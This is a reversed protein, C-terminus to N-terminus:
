DEISVQVIENADVAEIPLRPDYGAVILYNGAPLDVLAIGRTEGAPAETWGIVSGPNPLVGQILASRVDSSTEGGTEFVAFSVPQDLSNVFDFVVAGPNVLQGRFATLGNADLTIPIGVANVDFLPALDVIGSLLWADQEFVYLWEQRLLVHGDLVTLNISGSAPTATPEGITEVEIQGFFGADHMNSMIEAAAASVATGFQTQVLTPLMMSALATWDESNRCRVLSETTIVIALRRDAQESQTAAPSAQQDADEICSATPNAGPTGQGAADHSLAVASLVVICFTLVVLIHARIAM